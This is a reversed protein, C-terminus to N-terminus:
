MFSQMPPSSDFAKSRGRRAAGGTGAKPRWGLQDPRLARSRRGTSQRTGLWGGSRRDQAGQGSSRPGSPRSRQRLRLACLSVAHISRLAPHRDPVLEARQCDASPPGRDASRVNRNVRFAYRSVFWTRTDTASPVRLGARLRPVHHASSTGPSRCPSRGREGGGRRSEREKQGGRMGADSPLHGLAAVPTTTWAPRTRPKAQPGCWGAKGLM